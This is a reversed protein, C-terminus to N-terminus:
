DFRSKQRIGPRSLSELHPTFLCNYVDILLVRLPSMQRSSMPSISRSGQPTQTRTTRLSEDNAFLRLVLKNGVLRLQNAVADYDYDYQKFLKHGKGRPLRLSFMTQNEM